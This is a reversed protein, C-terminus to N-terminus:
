PISHSRVVSASVADVQALGVADLNRLYSRFALSRWRLIFQIRTDSVGAAFLICCAGIRLSHPSWRSLRKSDSKPDLGYTTAALTRMTATIVRPTIPRITGKSDRYISLPLDTRSIGVLRDFRQLILLVARIPCFLPHTSNVSYCKTEGHDGNKQRHYCISVSTFQSPDPRRIADFPSIGRETATSFSVDDVTFARPRNADSLFVESLTGYMDAPQAWESLRHGTSLGLGFFDLLAAQLSDSYTPSQDTSCIAGFTEHMLTTYPEQRNPVSMWRDYELLVDSIPKAYDSSTSSEERLGGFGCTAIMAANAARLYERITKTVIATGLITSQSCLHTAYCALVWVRGSEPVGDFTLTPAPCDKGAISM